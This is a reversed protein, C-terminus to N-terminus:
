RFGKLYKPNVGLKLKYCIIKTIPSKIRVNGREPAKAFRFWINGIGICHAAFNLAISAALAAWSAAKICIVEKVFYREESMTIAKNGAIKSSVNKLDPNCFKRVLHNLVGQAAIITVPIM